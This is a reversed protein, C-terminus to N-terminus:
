NLSAHLYQHAQAEEVDAWRSYEFTSNSVETDFTVSWLRSTAGEMVDIVEQHRRESADNYAAAPIGSTARALSGFAQDCIFAVTVQEVDRQVDQNLNRAGFTEEMALEIAGHICFSQVAGAGTRMRGKTWGETILETARGCVAAALGLVTDSATLKTM